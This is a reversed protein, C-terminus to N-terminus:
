VAGLKPDPQDLLFAMGRSLALNAPNRPKFREGSSSDIAPQNVVELWERFLGVWGLELSANEGEKLAEASEWGSDVIKEYETVGADPMKPMAPDWKGPRGGKESVANGAVLMRWENVRRRDLSWNRFVQNIQNINGKSEIGAAKDFRRVLLEPNLHSAAGMCLLSTLDAAYAMVTDGNGGPLPDYVYSYGASQEDARVEADSLDFSRDVPGNVGFRVSQAPKPAHYLIYDSDSASKGIKKFKAATEDHESQRTIEEEDDGHDAFVANSPLLYDEEPHLLNAKLKGAEGGPDKVTQDLYAAYGALTMPESPAPVYQTAASEQDTSSFALRDRDVRIFLDGSGEWWLKLLERRASPYYLKDLAPAAVAADSYLTQDEFLRVHHPKEAPFQPMEPIKVDRLFPLALGFAVAGWFIAWWLLTPVFQPVETVESFIGASLAAFLILVIAPGSHLFSLASRIGYGKRGVDTLALTLFTLAAAAPLAFFFGWRLGPGPMKEQAGLILACIQIMTGGVSNFLGLGTREEAGLSTISAIFAGYFTSSLCGLMLALSMLMFWARDKDHDKLGGLFMPRTQPLAAGLLPLMLVPGVLPLLFGFWKWLGFDYGVSIIGHRLMRYGDRVFEADPQPPSFKSQRQEFEALGRAGKTRAADSLYSKTSYIKDLAEAYAAFLQAPVEGPWWEGWDAGERTSDRGFVMQSVLAEHSVEGDAHKLKNWSSTGLHWELDNVFPHSIVDTAIHSLHGLVYARVQDLAALRETEVKVDAVIAASAKEWIALALDCTGAVVAERNEDPSGKHVTDFVWAQGPALIASYGTLDGGQTGLVALKSIGQGLPRGDPFAPTQTEAPPPSGLIRWASDALQKVTDELTTLKVGAYERARLADGVERLRERALLLVAKHTIIAPM